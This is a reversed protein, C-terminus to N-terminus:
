RPHTLRWTMALERDLLELPEALAAVSIFSWSEALELHTKVEGASGAAVRFHHLRDRGVRRRGEALNSPISQAAKRIQRALDPDHQAIERTLPAVTRNIDLAVVLADFAMHTPGKKTPNM